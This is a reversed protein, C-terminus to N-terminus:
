APWCCCGITGEACVMCAGWGCRAGNLGALWCFCTKSVNLSSREDGSRFSTRAFFFPDPLLEVAFAELFHLKLTITQSVVHIHDVQAWARTRGHAREVETVCRMM